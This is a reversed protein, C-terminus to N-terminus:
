VANLLKHSFETGKGLMVELALLLKEESAESNVDCRTFLDDFTIIL